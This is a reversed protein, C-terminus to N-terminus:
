PQDGAPRELKALGWVLLLLVLWLALVMTVFVADM